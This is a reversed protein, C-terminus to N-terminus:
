PVIERLKAVVDAVEDNVIQHQYRSSHEIESLANALRRQITAEDDTGRRRIRSELVDMGPPLLFVTVADPRAKMVELAGQVDIKLVPIRGQDILAETDRRPSGYYNGHVVKHEWFHGQDNLFKFTELDVFNYDRGDTEGARRPRTTYTVVRAIRADASCWADLVTDKGVGSPGSLIVIM